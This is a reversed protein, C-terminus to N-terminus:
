SLSLIFLVFFCLINFAIIFTWIIIIPILHHISKNALHFSSLILKLFALHFYKTIYSRIWFLDTLINILFVILSFPETKIVLFLIGFLYLRDIWGIIEVRKWRTLWNWTTRLSRWWNRGNTFIFSTICFLSLVM